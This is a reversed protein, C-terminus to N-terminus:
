RGRAAPVVYLIPLLVIFSFLIGIDRRNFTGIAPRELRVRRLYYLALLQDRDCGILAVVLEFLDPLLPTM